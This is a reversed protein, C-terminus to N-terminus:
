FEVTVKAYVTHVGDTVQITLKYMKQTEWDLQKALLITGPVEYGM